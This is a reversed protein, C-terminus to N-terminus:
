TAHTLHENLFITILSFSDPSNHPVFWCILYAASFNESSKFINTSDVKWQQLMLIIQMKWNSVTIRYKRTYTGMSHSVEEGKTLIDFLFGGGDIIVRGKERVTRFLQFAQNYLWKIELKKSSLSKVVAM